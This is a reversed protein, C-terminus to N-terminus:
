CAIDRSDCFRNENLKRCIFSMFGIYYDHETVERSFFFINLTTCSLKDIELTLVKPKQRIVKFTNIKKFINYPTMKSKAETSTFVVLLILILDATGSVNFKTNVNQFTSM